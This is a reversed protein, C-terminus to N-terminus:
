AARPKEFTLCIGSIEDIKYFKDGIKLGQKRFAAIIAPSDAKCAADNPAVIVRATAAETTGGLHLWITLVLVTIPNM